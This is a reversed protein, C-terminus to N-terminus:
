RIDSFCVPISVSEVDGALLGYVAKEYEEGGPKRALAFCMRKWLERKRNGTVRIEGDDEDGKPGDVQPDWADEGGTLSAARWFEGADECLERADETQGKRLFGWVLKM